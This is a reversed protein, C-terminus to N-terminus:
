KRQWQGTPTQIYVGPGANAQLKEASLIGVAEVTIGNRQALEMYVRRRGDNTVTVLERVEADPSTTVAAVYGDVKEGVLGKSKAEDLTLSLALSSTGATLLLTLILLYKKMVTNRM